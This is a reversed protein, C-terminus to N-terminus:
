QLLREAAFWRPEEGSDSPDPCRRSVDRVVPHTV